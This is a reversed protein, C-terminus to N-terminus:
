ACRSSRWFFFFFKLESSALALSSPSPVTWIRRSGVVARLKPCPCRDEMCQVRATLSGCRKEGGLGSEVNRAMEIIVDISCDDIVFARFASWADIRDRSPRTMVDFANRTTQDDYQARPRVHKTMAILFHRRSSAHFSIESLARWHVVSCDPCAVECASSSSPQRLSPM